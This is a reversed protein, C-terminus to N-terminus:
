MLRALLGPVIARWAQARTATVVAEEESLRAFIRKKELVVSALTAARLECALALVQACAAIGLSGVIISLGWVPPLKGVVLAFVTVIVTFVPFVHGFRLAWDRRAALSPERQALLFIGVRLAALAHSEVTGPHNKNKTFDPLELHKQTAAGTSWLSKKQKIDVQKCGMSDLMKRATKEAPLNLLQKGERRLIRDGNLKRLIIAVLLPVLSFLLLLRHM